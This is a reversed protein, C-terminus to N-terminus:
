LPRPSPNQYSHGLGSYSRRMYRSGQEKNAEKIIAAAKMRADKSTRVDTVTVSGYKSKQM